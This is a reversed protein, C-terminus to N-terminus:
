DPASPPKGGSEDDVESVDGIMTAGPPPAFRKTIDDWTMVAVPFFKVSEGTGQAQKTEERTKDTVCILAKTGGDILDRCEVLCVRGDEVAALLNNFHSQDTGGIPM